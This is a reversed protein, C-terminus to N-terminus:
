MRVQHALHATAVREARDLEWSLRVARCVQDHELPDRPKRATIVQQIKDELQKADEQPLVPMLTRATMGHTVANGRAHAKGRETKPGTSKQANRRNAEIQAATAM